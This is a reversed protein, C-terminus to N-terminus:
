EKLDKIEISLEKIMAKEQGCLEALLSYFIIYNEKTKSLDFLERQNLFDIIDNTASIVFQQQEYIRNISLRSKINFKVESDEILTWASNTLIERQIGNNYNDFYGLKFENVTDLKNRIFDECEKLLEEHYPLWRNLIDLNSEFEEIIIQKALETANKQKGTERVENLWFALLVSILIFLANLLHDALRKSLTVKLRM